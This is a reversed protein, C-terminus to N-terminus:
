LRRMDRCAWTSPWIPLRKRSLISFVSNSCQRSGPVFRTFVQEARDNVVAILGEGDLMCLGHQMTDLATDLEAKTPM